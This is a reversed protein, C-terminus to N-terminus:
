KNECEDVQGCIRTDNPIHKKHPKEITITEKKKKRKEKKKPIPNLICRPAPLQWYPTCISLAAMSHADQCDLQM